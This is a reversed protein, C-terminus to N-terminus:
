PRCNQAVSQKVKDDSEAREGRNARDLIWRMVSLSYIRCARGSKGNSKLEGARVARSITSKYTDVVTAAETVTLWRPYNEDAQKRDPPSVVRPPKQRAAKFWAMGDIRNIEHYRLKSGPGPHMTHRYEVIWIEPKACYWLATLWPWQHSETRTISDLCGMLQSQLMGAFELWEKNCVAPLCKLDPADLDLEDCEGDRDVYSVLHM